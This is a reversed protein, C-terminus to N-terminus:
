LSGSITKISEKMSTNNLLANRGWWLQTALKTSCRKRREAMKTDDHNQFNWVRRHCVASLALMDIVLTFDVFIPKFSVSLFLAHVQTIRLFNYSNLKIKRDYLTCCTSHPCPRSVHYTPTSLLDIRGNRVLRGTCNDLNTDYANAWNIQHEYKM